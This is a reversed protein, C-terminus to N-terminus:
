EVVDHEALENFAAPDFPDVSVAHHAAPLVRSDAQVEGLPNAGMAGLQMVWAKLLEAPRGELGSVPHKPDGHEALASNLLTSEAPTERDIQELTAALNRLTAEPHGVGDVALRNLLFRGTEARQHCGTSSCSHVLLPQIQRAFAAKAWQPLAEAAKTDLTSEATSPKESQSVPVMVVAARDRFALQLQRELSNLEPDDPDLRRADLLERSAYELQGQKWCWRALARHAEANNGARARRHEYAEGYSQCVMDVSQVAIQTLGHETTLRYYDGSRVIEGRLV